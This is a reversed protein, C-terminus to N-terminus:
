LPILRRRKFYWLFVCFIVIGTLGSIGLVWYFAKLKDFLPVPFNMGFIGVVVGLIAVIFSATSLLLDVQILQNRVNDLQINIFDETDDIYGKLTILKNLTNDVVVFHAELLMGAEEINLKGTEVIRSSEHRSSRAFSFNREMKKQGASTRIPSGVPSTPASVSLGPGGPNGHESHSSEISHKKRTLYLEAMDDDDDVLNEIEDRVKQVKRTLAVLRNKLRRVRELNLTSIRSILEDLLPYGEIELEATLANLYDCTEELAVDLAIFEFPLNDSRSALRRKVLEVYQWELGPANCSLGEVSVLLEDATIICRINELNLVIAKERSVITSPYALLPDLLRLDRSPLNYQRMITVKDLSVCSSAGTSAEVRIWSHLPTKKELNAINM